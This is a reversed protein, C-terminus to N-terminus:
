QEQLVQSFGIIANLPTRLEHSMSALFDSKARNAVEAVQVAQELQGTREKVLEELHERHKTLEEEAQKRETIRGLREAVGDILLREEKLFPGEDIEPREELYGVEVSGAKTEGIKIDASQKWETDRYNETEFRKDDIIIRAYTIEPYQWSQPLFNVVEQYLEDLTTGAKQAINAIGYLGQLEKVREKLGQELRKQEEELEMDHLA